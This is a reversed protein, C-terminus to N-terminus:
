NMCPLIIQPGWPYVKRITAPGTRLILTPSCVRVPLVQTPGAIKGEKRYIFKPFITCRDPLNWIKNQLSCSVSHKITFVVKHNKHPIERYKYTCSIKINPFIIDHFMLIGGLVVFNNPTKNTKSCGDTCGDWMRHGSQFEYLIYDM